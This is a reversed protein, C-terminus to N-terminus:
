KLINKYSKHLDFFQASVTLTGDENMYEHVPNYAKYDGYIHKLYEDSGKPCMVITDEFQMPKAESFWEKPIGRESPKAGVIVIKATPKISTYLNARKRVAKYWSPLLVVSIMKCIKRWVSEKNEYYLRTSIRASLIREKLRVYLELLINNPYYDIPFIDIYIGMHVNLKKLVTQVFTTNSDRIKGFSLPFEKDTQYSQIFLGDAIYKQGKEIFIDYDKRPMAIDIDDDYPYFSGRTYAGLLSGHVLYYNLGLKNCVDIFAKLIRTQISNMAQVQEYTLKM